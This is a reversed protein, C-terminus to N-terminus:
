QVTSARANKGIQLIKDLKKTWYAQLDANHSLILKSSINASIIRLETAKKFRERLDAVLADSEKSSGESDLEEKIDGLEKKIDALMNELEKLYRTVDEKEEEVSRIKEELDRFEDRYTQLEASESSSEESNIAAGEKKRIMAKCELTGVVYEALKKRLAMGELRDLLSDKKTMAEALNHQHQQEKRMLDDRRMQLYAVRKAMKIRVKGLRDFGDRIDKEVKEFNKRSDKEQQRFMKSEESSQSANQEKVEDKVKM